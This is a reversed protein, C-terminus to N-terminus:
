TIPATSSSFTSSTSAWRASRATSRGASTSPASTSSLAVRFEPIVPGPRCIGCKTVIEFRDRGGQEKLAEGLFREVTYPAGYVSATDLTTIGRELLFDLFGALEKASSFQDQSRMAGWIVRSFEPGQQHIKVRAVPGPHAM